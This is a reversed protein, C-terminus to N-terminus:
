RPLALMSEIWGPIRTRWRNVVVGAVECGDLKELTRSLELSSTSGNRAVIIVLDCLQALVPATTSPLTAPLDFIVFRNSAKLSEVLQVAYESRAARTSGAEGETGVPVIALEAEEPRHSAEELSVTGRLFDTFGKEGELGIDESHPETRFDAEVLTVDAGMDEALSVSLARAITTRGEGGSPSTVGIALSPLPTDTRAAGRGTLGAVRHIESVADQLMERTKPHVSVSM